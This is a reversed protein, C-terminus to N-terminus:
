SPSNERENPVCVRNGVVLRTPKACSLAPADCGSRERAWCVVNVLPVGEGSNGYRFSQTEPEFTLPGNSADTLVSISMNGVTIPRHLIVRKFRM